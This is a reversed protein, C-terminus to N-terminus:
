IHIYEYIICPCSLKGSFMLVMSREVSRPAQNPGMIAWHGGGGGRVWQNSAASAFTKARFIPRGHRDAIGIM